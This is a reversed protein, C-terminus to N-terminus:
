ETQSQLHYGSNAARRAVRRLSAASTASISRRCKRHERRGCCWIACTTRSARERFRHLLNLRSRRHLDPSRDPTEPGLHFQRHRAVVPRRRVFPRRRPCPNMFNSGFSIMQRFWREGRPMPLRQFVRLISEEKKTGQRTVPKRPERGYERLSQNPLAQRFAQVLARNEHAVPCLSVRLRHTGAGCCRAVAPCDPM